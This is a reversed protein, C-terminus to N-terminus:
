MPCSIEHDLHWDTADRVLGFRTVGADREMFEIRRARIRCVAGGRRAIAEPSAYLAGAFRRALVVFARITDAGDLVEATGSIQLGATRGKWWGNSPADHLAVAVRNDDLIHSAHRATRRSHFYLDLDRDFAFAVTTAWPGERDSTCLTMIQARDMLNRVRELADRPSAVAPDVQQAM